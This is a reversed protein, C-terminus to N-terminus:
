HSSLPSGQGLCHLINFVVAVRLLIINAKVKYILMHNLTYVHGFKGHCVFFIKNSFYIPFEVLFSFSMFYQIKDTILITFPFDFDLPLTSTTISPMQDVTQSSEQFSLQAVTTQLCNPFAM